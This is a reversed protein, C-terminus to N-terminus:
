NSCEPTPFTLGLQTVRIDLKPLAPDASGVLKDGTFRRPIPESYTRLRVSLGACNKFNRLRGGNWSQVYGEEDWGFGWFGIEAGNMRVLAKLTTGLTLGGATRWKCDRIVEPCISVSEPKGNKSFAVALTREPDGKFLFKAPYEFGEDGGALGDQVNAAGVQRLLSERTSDKNVPGVRNGPIILQDQAQM